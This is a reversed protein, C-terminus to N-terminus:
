RKVQINVSKGDEFVGTVLLKCDPYKEDFGEDLLQKKVLKLYSGADKKPVHGIPVNFLITSGKPPPAIVQLSPRDTGPHHPFVFLEVNTKDTKNLETRFAKLISGLYDQAQQPQMTGVPVHIIVTDKDTIKYKDVVLEEPNLPKFM